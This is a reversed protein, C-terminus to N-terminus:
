STPPGLVANVLREADGPVIPTRSLARLVVAGVLAEVVERAPGTPIGSAADPASFRSMLSLAGLSDGLRQGVETNEAAAAILSRMLGEGNPSALVQFIEQLWTTIDSRLDGTDPPVLREPLLMGELLCEAVLYGKSPWWRYITQKGVGAAAAISEVTLHDYGREAFLRATAELISTRAAESRVAGRRREPM